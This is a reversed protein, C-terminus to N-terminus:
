SAQEIDIYQAGVKVFKIDVTENSNVDLYKDLAELFGDRGYGKPCSVKIEDGTSKVKASVIYRPSDQGNYKNTPDDTLFDKAVTVTEGLKALDRMGVWDGAVNVPKEYEFPM